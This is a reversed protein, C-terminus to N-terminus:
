IRVSVIYVMKFIVAPTFFGLYKDVFRQFTYFLAMTGLLSLYTILLLFADNLFSVDESRTKKVQFHLKFLQM